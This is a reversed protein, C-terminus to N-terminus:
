EPNIDLSNDAGVERLYVKAKSIIDDVKQDLNEQYKVRKIGYTYMHFSEYANSSIM